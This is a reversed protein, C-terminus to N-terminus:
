YGSRVTSAKGQQSAKLTELAAEERVDAVWWGKMVQPEVGIM